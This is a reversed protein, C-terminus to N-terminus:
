SMGGGIKATFVFQCGLSEVTLTITTESGIDPGEVYGIPFPAGPEEVISVSWAPNSSEITFPIFNEGDADTVVVAFQSYPYEDGYNIPTLTGPAGVRVLIDECATYGGTSCLDDKHPQTEYGRYILAYDVAHYPIAYIEDKGDGTRRESLTDHAKLQDFTSESYFDMSGDGRNYTVALEM